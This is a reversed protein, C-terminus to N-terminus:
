NGDIHSPVVLRRTKLWTSNYFHGFCVFIGFLLLCVVVFGSHYQCRDSIKEGKILIAKTVHIANSM